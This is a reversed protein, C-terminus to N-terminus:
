GVGRRDVRRRDRRAAAAEPRQRTCAGTRAAAGALHNAKDALGCDYLIAACRDNAARESQRGGFMAAVLLNEFATMGGYPRPVQYTRGIGRRCRRFPPEASRLPQGDFSMTGAGLAVDGSILNFLTTKGAGNPGLVGLVEGPQVDFGLDQIVSVAGFSKALGRATFLPATM